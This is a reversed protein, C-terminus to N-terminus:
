EEVFKNERSYERIHPSPAFRRLPLHDQPCVVTTRNDLPHPSFALPASHRAPDIESSVRMVALRDKM